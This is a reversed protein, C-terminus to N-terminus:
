LFLRRESYKSISGFICSSGLSDLLDIIVLTLSWNMSMDAKRCTTRIWFGEIVDLCIMLGAFTSTLLLPSCADGKRKEQM